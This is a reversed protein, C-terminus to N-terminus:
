APDLVSVQLLIKKIVEKGNTLNLYRIRENPLHANDTSQGLPLHIAPAKLLQEMFSTIPMTGGERVHLPTQGWVETVAAEAMRFAETTRDSFWWDGVKRVQSLWWFVGLVVPKLRSGGLGGSNDAAVRERVRSWRFM